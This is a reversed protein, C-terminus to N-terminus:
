KIFTPIFEADIQTLNEGSVYIANGFFSTGLGIIMDRFLYGVFISGFALGVLPLSM